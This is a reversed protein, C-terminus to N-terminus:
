HKTLQRIKAAIKQARTIPLPHWFSSSNDNLYTYSQGVESEEFVYCQTEDGSISELMMLKHFPNLLILDDCYNDTLQKQIFDTENKKFGPIDIFDGDAIAKEVMTKLYKSHGRKLLQWEDLGVFYTEYAEIIEASAQDPYIYQFSVGKKICNLIIDKLTENEFEWPMRSTVLTYRDGKGLSEILNFIEEQYKAQMAQFFHAKQDILKLYDVTQLEKQQEVRKKFEGETINLISLLGVAFKSQYNGKDAFYKLNNLFTNPSKDMKQALESLKEFGREKMLVHVTDIVLKM